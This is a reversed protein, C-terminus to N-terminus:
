KGDRAPQTPVPVAEAPSIAGQLASPLDGAALPPDNKYPNYLPDGICTQMWSTWPLTRWYAEALTLRGTMLLPFFEDAPPFSQLYPEAVPGLTGVVGESLLGRVWGHENRQRLSILELSAVHFGVAGPSFSGPSSYNRLSYWGCYIAIDHLSHAPILSETNDLTLQLRTKQKVLDALRRLKQDYESYPDDGTRGRADIAVQGHLGEYEVKISTLILNRVILESPGDLRTVMLTPPLRLHRERWHLQARWELQNQVWKARPYGTWWLMSLESDLASESQDTDLMEQRSNLLFAYGVLGLNDRALTEAELRDSPMAGDSQLKAIEGQAAKVRAQAAVVEQRQPPNASFLAIAPQAVIQTTRDAGLLRQLPPLMQAYQAARDAPDKIAPLAKVIVPMATDIRRALSRVDDGTPPKFSPDLRVALQELVVVDASIARRAETLELAAHATEDREAPTLVHENVRLPVGWFTVLCKVRDKLNNNQLFARVPAAVKPEYQDFPMEEAPDFPTGPDLDIEIIRGDPIHRLRAYQEALTRGEPVRSNVLLAIDDPSLAWAPAAASLICLLFLAFRGSRRPVHRMPYFGEVAM